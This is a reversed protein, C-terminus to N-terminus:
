PKGGTPTVRPKILERLAPYTAPATPDPKAHKILDFAWSGLKGDYTKLFNTFDEKANGDARDSVVRLHLGAIHYNALAGAAGFLNMEVIPAASEAASRDEPTQVFKEGSACTLAKWQPPPDSPVSQEVAPLSLTFFGPKGQVEPLLDELASPIPLAVGPGPEASVQWGVVKTALVVTGGTLDATLGGCPGLSIVWDCRGSSLLATTSVATEVSGSGMKVARVRHPGVQVVMIRRQGENRVQPEVGAKLIFAKWDEDLAYLLGVEAARGGPALLSLFVLLYIVCCNQFYYRM